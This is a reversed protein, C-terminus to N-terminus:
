HEFPQHFDGRKGRGINGFQLRQPACRSHFRAADGIQGLAAIGIPRHDLVTKHPGVYLVRYPAIRTNNGLMGVAGAARKGARNGRAQTVPKFQTLRNGPAAQEHALCHFARRAEAKAISRQPM